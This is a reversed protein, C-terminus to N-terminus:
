MHVEELPGRITERGLARGVGVAGQHMGADSSGSGEMNSTGAVEGLQSGLLGPPAHLSSEPVKLFAFMSLECKWSDGTVKSARSDGCLFEGFTLTRLFNKINMM